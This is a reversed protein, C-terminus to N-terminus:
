LLKKFLLILTILMIIFIIYQSTSLQNVLNMESDYTIQTVGEEWLTIIIISAHLNYNGRALLFTSLNLPFKPGHSGGWESWTQAELNQM